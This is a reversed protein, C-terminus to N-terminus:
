VTAAAINIASAVLWTILVLSDLVALVADLLLRILPHPLIAAIYQSAGSPPQSPCAALM